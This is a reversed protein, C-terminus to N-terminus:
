RRGLERERKITLLRAIDKRLMAYRNPEEATYSSKMAERRGREIVLQAGLERIKADLEDPNMDRIESPKM